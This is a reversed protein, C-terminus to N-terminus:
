DAPPSCRQISNWESSKGSAGQISARRMLIIAQVIPDVSQYLITAALAAKRNYERIQATANPLEAGITIKYAEEGNLLMRIDKWSHYNQGNLLESVEFKITHRGASSMNAVNIILYQVSLSKKRSRHTFREFGPSM